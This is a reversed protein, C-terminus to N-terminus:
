MSGLSKGPRVPATTASKVQAVCNRLVTLVARISNGRQMKLMQRVDAPDQEEFRCPIASMINQDLPIM